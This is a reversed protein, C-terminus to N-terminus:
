EDFICKMGRACNICKCSEDDEADDPKPEDQPISINLIEVRGKRRGTRVFWGLELVFERYKGLRDRHSLELEKALTTDSTFCELGHSGGIALALSFSILTQRNIGKPLKPHANLIYRQWDTYARYTQKTLEM